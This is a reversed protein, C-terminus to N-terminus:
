CDPVRHLDRPFISIIHRRNLVNRVCHHLLDLIRTPEYRDKARQRFGRWVPLRRERLHIYPVLLEPGARKM